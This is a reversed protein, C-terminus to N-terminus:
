GRTPRESRVAVPFTRRRSGGVSTVHTPTPPQVPPSLARQEPLDIETSVIPENTSPRRVKVYNQAFRANSPSTSSRLSFEREQAGITSLNLHQNEFISSM